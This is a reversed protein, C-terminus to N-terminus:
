SEMVLSLDLGDSEVSRGDDVEQADDSVDTLKSATVGDYHSYRGIEAATGILGLEMDSRVESFEVTWTVVLRYYLLQAGGSPPTIIVACYCRPLWAANPNLTVAGTSSNVSESVGFVTPQRPMPQPHGRLYSGQGTATAGTAGSASISPMDSSPASLQPSSQGNLPAGFTHLLTWVLPRLNRMTLGAQPHAKKFSPDSLLAYYARTSKEATASSFMDQAFKVTDSLSTVTGAEGYIKNVLGNWSDNSVAKYLLPNFMDQPSIQNANSGIQLPDAPLASACAISVDGKVVRVFKYNRYFGPYKLSIYGASPTRIAIMGMKGVTTSLDYTEMLRVVVM